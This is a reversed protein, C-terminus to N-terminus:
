RQQARLREIEGILQLVVERPLTAESGPRLMGVTQRIQIIEHHSLETM